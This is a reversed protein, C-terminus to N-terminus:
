TLRVSGQAGLLFNGGLQYPDGKVPMLKRGKALLRFYYLFMKLHWATLVSSGLGFAAYARREQDLFLPFPFAEQWHRALEPNANRHIIAGMLSGLLQLTFFGCWALTVRRTYREVTKPLPGRIKRALRTIIAERGPALSTGFFALLGIYAMAHPLALAVAAGPPALRWLAVSGALVAAGGAWRLARNAVFSLGVGAVLVSQLVALIGALGPWQQSALAAHSAVPVMVLGLGVAWGGPGSASGRM